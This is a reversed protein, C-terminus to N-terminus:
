IQTATCLLLSTLFVELLANPAKFLSLRCKYNIIRSPIAKRHAVKPESHCMQPIFQDAALNPAPTGQASSHQVSLFIICKKSSRGFCRIALWHLLCDPVLGVM